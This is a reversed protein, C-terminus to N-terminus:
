GTVTVRLLEVGVLALDLGLQAAQRSTRAM